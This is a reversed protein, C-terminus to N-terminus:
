WGEKDLLWTMFKENKLEAAPAEDLQSVKWGTDDGKYSVVPEVQKHCDMCLVKRGDSLNLNHSDKGILLVDAAIFKRGCGVCEYETTLTM